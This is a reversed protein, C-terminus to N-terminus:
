FVQEKQQFFYTENNKRLSLASDSISIIPYKSFDSIKKYKVMCFVLIIVGVVLLFVVPFVYNNALVYFVGCGMILMSFCSMALKVIYNYASPLLFWKYKKGKEWIFFHGLSNLIFHVNPANVDFENAVEINEPIISKVKQM